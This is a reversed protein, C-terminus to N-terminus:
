YEWLNHMKELLEQRKKMAMNIIDYDYGGTGYMDEINVDEVNQFKVIYSSFLRLDMAHTFSISKNRPNKPNYWYGTEKVACNAGPAKQWDLECGYAKDIYEKVEMYKFRLLGINAAGENAEPPSLLSIAVVDWKAVSHNRDFILDEEIQIRNFDGQGPMLTEYQNAVFESDIIADVQEDTLEQNANEERSRVARRDAPRDSEDYNQAGPKLYRMAEELRQRDVILDDTFTSENTVQDYGYPTIWTGEDIGQEAASLYDEVGRFLLEAFRSEVADWPANIKENMNMNSWLRVSFMVDEDRIPRISLDSNPKKASSLNAVKSSSELGKLFEAAKGSQDEEEQAQLGLVAIFFVILVTCYKM